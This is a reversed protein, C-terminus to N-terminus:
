RRFPCGGSSPRKFKRWKELQDKNLINEIEKQNAQIINRMAAPNNRNEFYLQRYKTGTDFIKKVQNDSLGLETQMYEIHNIGFGHHVHYGDYGYGCHRGGRWYNFTFFLGILALVVIIAGIIYKKV